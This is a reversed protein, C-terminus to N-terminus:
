ISKVIKHHRIETSSDQHLDGKLEVVLTNTRVSLVFLYSVRRPTQRRRHIVAVLGNM